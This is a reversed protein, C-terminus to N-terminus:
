KDMRKLCTNWKELFQDIEADKTNWGMSIRLGTKALEEPVGMALLVRSPKVAGSSCAAGSSIAVNELDLNMLFVASDIGEVTCSTTNAVRPADEGYIRVRNSSQRLGTELKERLTELAQFDDMQETALRAAEGFGAIGAVNETGARCRREQGGGHMFKPPNVGQRTILAGVGQPGGLKHASLSMFDVDLDKFSLPFRGAAQVADTHFIGEHAHVLDCIEKTPQIVGTENNVMMISVLARSHKKLLKELAELDILGSEKVPISVADERGCFYVSPHETTAVLLPRDAYGRLVTNNSETAGSTFIVQKPACGVLSAVHERATEVHKRAARGAGHISSANGHCSMVEHSIKVVEPRIPCTANYDFYLM